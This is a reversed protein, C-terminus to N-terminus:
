IEINFLGHPYHTLSLLDRYSKVSTISGRNRDSVYAFVTQGGLNIERMMPVCNMDIETVSNIRTIISNFEDMQSGLVMEEMKCTPVIVHTSGEVISELWGSYLPSSTYSEEHPLGEEPLERAPSFSLSSKTHLSYNGDFEYNDGEEEDYIEFGTM